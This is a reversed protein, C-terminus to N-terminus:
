SKLPNNAKKFFIDALIKLAKGTNNKDDSFPEQSTPHQLSTVLQHAEAIVEEKATTQPINFQHPIFKVSNTIREDRTKPIYVRHCRYHSTAMGLYWGNEGHTEWTKRKKQQLIYM